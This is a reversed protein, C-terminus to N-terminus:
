KLQQEGLLRQWVRQDVKPQWGCEQQLESGAWLSNVVEQAVAPELLAPRAMAQLLSDLAADGPNIRLKACAWLVNAVDQGKVGELLPHTVLLRIQEGLQQVAAEVEPRPVGPVENKNIAAVTGLGHLTNAVNVGIVEGKNLQVQKTMAPLTSSWVQPNTYRLKGCAWLVNALAQPGADPLV